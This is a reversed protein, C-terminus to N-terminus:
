FKWAEIVAPLGVLVAFIAVTGLWMRWSKLGELAHNPEANETM